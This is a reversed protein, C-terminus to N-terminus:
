QICLINLVFFHSYELLQVTMFEVCKGRERQSLWFMM